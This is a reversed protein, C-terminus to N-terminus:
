AAEDVEAGTPDVYRLKSAYDGLSISLRARARHIRSMVTGVPMGTIASIDKYKHGEIFAYYVVIRQSEPLSSLAHLVEPAPVHELARVEASPVVANVGGAEGLDETGLLEAPRRKTAQYRNIWANTMIRNLWARFDTGEEFTAYSRWARMLTEQVLDDADAPQNTYRRASRQLQYTLESVDRQFRAAHEGTSAVPRVRCDSDAETIASKQEPDPPALALGRPQIQNDDHREYV